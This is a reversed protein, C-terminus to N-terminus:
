DKLTHNYFERTCYIHLAAPKGQFTGGTFMCQTSDITVTPYKDGPKVNFGYAQPAPTVHGFPTALAAFTNAGSDWGSMPTEREYSHSESISLSVKQRRNSPAIQAVFAALRSGKVLKVIDSM